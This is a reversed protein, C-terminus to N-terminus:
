RIVFWVIAWHTPKPLAFIVKMEQENNIFRLPWKTRQRRKAWNRDMRVHHDPEIQPMWSTRGEKKRTSGEKSDKQQAYKTKSVDKWHQRPGYRQEAQPLESKERLDSRRAIHGTKKLKTTTNTRNRM